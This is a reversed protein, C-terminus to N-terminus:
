ITGFGLLRESVKILDPLFHSRVAYKHESGIKPNRLYWYHFIASESSRGDGSSEDLEGPKSCVSTKLCFCKSESLLNRSILAVLRNVM